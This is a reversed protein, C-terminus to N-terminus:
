YTLKLEKMTVEGSCGRCHAEAEAKTYRGAMDLRDTYGCSGGRYYLGRKVLAYAPEGPLGGDIAWLQKALIRALHMDHNAVCKELKSRMKSVLPRSRYRKKAKVADYSFLSSSCENFVEGSAIVLWMNNLGYFITGRKLVGDPGFFYRVDGNKLEAGDQDQRNRISVDPRIGTNTEYEQFHWCSRIRYEVEDRADRLVPSSTDQFGSSSILKSIKGQILDIRKRDLYTARDYHDFGYEPGARDGAGYTPFFNIKMGAPYYDAKFAIMGKTGARNYPSLIRYHKKIRPDATVKWGEKKLLNMIQGFLEKNVDPSGADSQAICFPGNKVHWFSKPTSLHAKRRPSALAEIEDIRQKSLQMM